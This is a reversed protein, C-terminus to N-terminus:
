LPGYRAMDLAKAVVEARLGLWSEEAASCHFEKVNQKSDMYQQTKIQPFYIGLSILISTNSINFMNVNKLWTPSDIYKKNQGAQRQTTSINLWCLIM